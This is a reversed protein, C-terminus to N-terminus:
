EDFDADVSNEIARLVYSVRHPDAKLFLVQVDQIRVVNKKKLNLTFENTNSPLLIVDAKPPSIHTTTGTAHSEGYEAYYPFYHQTSYNQTSYSLGTTNLTTKNSRIEVDILKLRIVSGSILGLYRLEVYGEDVKRGFLDARGFVNPLDRSKDIKFIAGGVHTELKRALPQELENYHEIHACSLFTSVVLLLFVLFTTKVFAITSSLEMEDEWSSRLVNWM